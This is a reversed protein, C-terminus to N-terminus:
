TLFYYHYLLVNRSVIASLRRIREQTKKMSQTENKLGKVDDKLDKLEDKLGNMVNKLGNVDKTLKDIKRDIPNLAQRLAEVFWPPADEGPHPWFSNWLSPVQLWRGHAAKV